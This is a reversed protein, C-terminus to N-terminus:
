EAFLMGIHPPQKGVVLRHLLAIVLLSADVRDHVHDRQSLAHEFALGPHRAIQEIRELFGLAATDLADEIGGHRAIRHRPQGIVGPTHLFHEAALQKGVADLGVPRRQLQEQAVRM